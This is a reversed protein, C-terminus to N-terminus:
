GRPRLLRGEFLTIGAEWGWGLAAARDAAAWCWGAASPRCRPPWRRAAGAVLAAPDSGGWRRRGAPGAATGARRRRAGGALRAGASTGRSARLGGSRGACGRREPRRDDAGAAGAGAGGRPPPIGAVGPYRAGAAARGPRAAPGGGAAGARGAPAAGSWGGCGARVAGAVPAPDAEPLLAACLEPWGLQWEEWAVQPAPMARAGAPLGAPRVLFRALSANGLSREMAALDAASLPLAPPAQRRGPALPRRRPPAAPALSDEVAALLAAAEEPLRRRRVFPLREEAAFLIALREEAVHLHRGEPPAVAVIDGNPLEFVRARTPRLLPELAERVLRQHHGHRAGAPLGGLRLHLVERALGAAVAERVLHALALADAAAAPRRPRARARLAAARRAARTMRRGGGGARDGGRGATRGLGAGRRRRLRDGAAAGAPLDRLAALLPAAGRAAAVLAAAAPRGALGAPAVLALAAADLGELALGWGRAALAQRLEALGPDAAAALPLVGFLGPVAGPPPLGRRPLPLLRWGPLDRAWAALAPLLRAALRDAAHALLDADAALPGLAAALAPRSLRLRRGRAPM